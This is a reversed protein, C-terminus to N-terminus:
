TCGLLKPLNNVSKTVPKSRASERQNITNQAVNVAMQLLEDDSEVHEQGDFYAGLKFIRPLVEECVWDQFAEAEPKRSRMILSYLGPETVMTFNNELEPVYLKFIEDEDCSIRFRSVARNKIDLLECVDKLLFAVEGDNFTVIRVQHGRFINELHIQLSGKRQQQQQKSVPIGHEMKVLNGM